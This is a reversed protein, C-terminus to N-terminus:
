PLQRGAGARRGRAVRGGEGRLYSLLTCEARGLPLLYRKGNIYALPAEAEGNGPGGM